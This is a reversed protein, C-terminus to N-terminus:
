RTEAVMEATAPNESFENGFSTQIYNVVAAIQEDNMISGLPPMAKQGHVVIYVPYEAYELAPNGALAPYAGAGVAGQGEPMHCSACVAEYLGKGTQQTLVSSSAFWAQSDDAATESANQAMAIGTALMGALAAATAIKIIHM